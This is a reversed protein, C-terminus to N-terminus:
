IVSRPVATSENGCKARPPWNRRTTEESQGIQSFVIHPHVNCSRRGDGPDVGSCHCAPKRPRAGLSLWERRGIPQHMPQVPSPACDFLPKIDTPCVLDKQLVPLRFYVPNTTRGTQPPAVPHHPRPQLAPARRRRDTRYSGLSEANAGGPLPPLGFIVVAHGPDDERPAPCQGAGRRPVPSDVLPRAAVTAREGTPTQWV